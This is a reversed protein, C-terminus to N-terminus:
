VKLRGGRRWSRRRASVRVKGMTKMVVWVPVPRARRLARALRKKKGLQKSTGM